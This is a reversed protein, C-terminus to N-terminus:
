SPTSQLHLHLKCKWVVTNLQQVIIQVGVKRARIEKAHLSEVFEADGYLKVGKDTIRLKGM